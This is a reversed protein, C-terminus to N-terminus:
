LVKADAGKTCTHVFILVPFLTLLMLANEIIFIGTFLYGGAAFLLYAVLLWKDLKYTFFAVVFVLELLVMGLWLLMALQEHAAVYLQVQQVWSQRDQVAAYVNQVQLVGALQSKYFLNGRVIKWIAASAFAFAFYYRAAALLFAFKRKGTTVFPLATVLVGVFAYHHGTILNFLLYYLAYCSYFVIVSKSQQPFLFSSVASLVLLVDFTVAVVKNGAILQPLQLLMTLWYAPDIEQYLLPNLGLQSVLLKAYFNYALILLIGGFLVRQLTSRHAAATALYNNIPSLPKLPM